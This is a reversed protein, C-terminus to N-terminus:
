IVVIIIIIIIVVIIIGTKMKESRLKPFQTLVSIPTLYDKNNDVAKTLANSFKFKVQTIEKEFYDTIYAGMVQSIQEELFERVERDSKERERTEVGIVVEDTMTKSHSLLSPGSELLSLLNNDNTTFPIATPQQTLHDLLIIHLASLKQRM